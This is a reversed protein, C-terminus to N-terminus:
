GSILNRLQCSDTSQSIKWSFKTSDKTSFALILNQFFIFRDMVLSTTEVLCTVPCGKLLKTFKRRTARNHGVRFLSTPVNIVCMRPTLKDIFLAPNSNVVQTENIESVAWNRSRITICVCDPRSLRKTSQVVYAVHNSNGVYMQAEDRDSWGWSSVVPTSSNTYTDDTFQTLLLKRTALYSVLSPFRREPWPVKTSGKAEVPRKKTYM